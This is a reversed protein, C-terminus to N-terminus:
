PAPKFLFRRHGPKPESFIQKLTEPLPPLMRGILERALEEWKIDTGDKTKKWTVAGKPSWLGEGDGIAQKLQNEIEIRKMQAEGAALRAYMLAEIKQAEEATADRMITADKPYLGELAKACAESGDVAPPTDKLVYSEWFETAKELIMAELELDRKIRNVRLPINMGFFTGLDWEPFKTVAMYVHCQIAYHQPVEDTGAEGWKDIQSIDATKAEFGREVGKVLRDPTGFIPADPHFIMETPKLLAVKEQEAYLACIPSEFLRGLLFRPNDEKEPMRGTKRLWVDLASEWPSLGLIAAMESGGIGRKRNALWEARKMNNGEFAQGEGRSITIKVIVFFM